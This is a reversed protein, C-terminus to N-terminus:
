NGIKEKIAIFREKNSIFLDVLKPDFGRGKESEILELAKEISWAKKYPRETTLADFVDCIAVIRGEIPISEGKLGAPYGSGDWKEHHSVAIKEATVLLPSESGSLIKGGIEAHTKMLSYEDNSLRGNKLLIADPIGIKGVDHMTSAEKIIEAQKHNIGALEALVESYGGVRLIHKGTDSDRYESAIALRKIIERKATEIEEFSKKLSSGLSNMTGAVVAVEYSDGILESIVPPYKKEPIMYEYDGDIFKDAQVKLDNMHSSAFNAFVLICPIMFVLIGVLVCALKTQMGSIVPAMASEPMAMVFTMGNIPTFYYIARTGIVPDELAKIMEQNRERLEIMEEEFNPRVIIEDWRKDSKIIYEAYEKLIKNKSASASEMLHKFDVIGSNGSIARMKMSGMAYRDNSIFFSYGLPNEENNQRELIDILDDIAVDICVVAVVNDDVIVPVAYTMLLRNTGEGTYPSSWYPKKTILPIQYWEKGEYSYDGGGFDTYRMKGTKKDKFIYSCCKGINPCAEPVFAVGAGCANLHEKRESTESILYEAMVSALYKKMGAIYKKDKNEKAAESPFSVQIFFAIQNGFNEAMNFAYSIKKIIRSSKIEARYSFIQQIGDGALQRLFCFPLLALLVSIILYTIIQTRIYPYRKM